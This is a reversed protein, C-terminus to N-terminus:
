LGQAFQRSIQREEKTMQGKRRAQSLEMLRKSEKEKEAKVDPEFYL